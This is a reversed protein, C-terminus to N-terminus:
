HRRRPAPIMVCSREVNRPYRVDCRFYYARRAHYTRAHRPRYRAVAIRHRTVKARATAHRPPATQLERPAMRSVTAFAQSTVRRKAFISEARAVNFRQSAADLYQTWDAAIGRQAESLDMAGAKVQAALYNEVLDKQKFYRENLEVDNPGCQPWINDLTDAGGLELPIFHDLECVMNQGSNNEPHPFNYWDYTQNKVTRGTAQDRTCGTSYDRAKLIRVTVTPNIAGPTCNPDPILFDNSTKAVCLRTPPLEVQKIPADGMPDVNHCNVTRASWAPEAALFAICALVYFLCRRPEAM